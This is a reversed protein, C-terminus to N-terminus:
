GNQEGGGVPHICSIQHSGMKIYPPLATRCAETAYSCRPAFACGEPLRMPDPMQGMIPKLRDTRANIDPISEFLGITYPHHPKSMDFLDYVSGTEVIRGAYMVAARNCTQSVVGLDHTIMIVSTGLTSKLQRILSLVQAQITVDLATTPEDALLLLPRCVLAVAIVIRQKMGGSFQLPYENKRAAPIGVMEMVEDVRQAIQEKSLRDPAHLRIAEGIQDGVTMIPNLATMPDQFIMSIMEGRLAQMEHDSLRSIDQGDFIIRGGTQQGIRDPLLRMLALATTTKGAGTEGIIGLTEGKDIVLDIGNVAKVVGTDMVYAVSLNEVKLVHESM